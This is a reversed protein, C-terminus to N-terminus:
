LSPQDPHSRAERNARRFETPTCGYYRRFQKNFYSATPFGCQECVEAINDKTSLLLTAARAIRRHNVYAMPSTQAVRQFCRCLYERSVFVRSALKELTIEQAMNKDIYKMTQKVIEEVSQRLNDKREMGNMVCCALIKQLLGSVYLEYGRVGEGNMHCIERIANLIESQYVSGPTFIRPVRIERHMIPLITNEFAAQTYSNALAEVSFVIACSTYREGNRDLVSHIEGPFFLTGEGPRLIHSGECNQIRVGGEELLFLEAQEHYHPSVM